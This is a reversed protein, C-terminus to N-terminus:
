DSAQGLAAQRRIRPRAGEGTRRVQGPPVGVLKRFANRFAAESQYGVSDAIGAVSTDTTTLLDIAVQMRWHALYSMPTQDLLSKFRASFSARSMGAAAAMSDVSWPEAPVGHLRNLVPGIRPDALAALLGSGIGTDIHWRLAHVLLVYALKDVVASRGPLRLRTEGIMLSLVARTDGLATSGLDLVVADPLSDLLPWVARSEFEFYGCVMETLPLSDDRPPPENVPTDPPVTEASTILHKSDRPFFVFDGPRLPRPAAGDLQLWSNGSQILHFTAMRQGSTDVAWTGCYAAETFIGVSLRLRSLLISLADQEIDMKMRDRM